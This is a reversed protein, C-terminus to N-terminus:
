RLNEKVNSSAVNSSAAALLATAQRKSTKEKFEGQM